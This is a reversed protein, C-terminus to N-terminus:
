LQPLSNVEVEANSEHRFGVVWSLICIQELFLEIAYKISVFSERPRSYIWLYFYVSNEYQPSFKPMNHLPIKNSLIARVCCFFYFFFFSELPFTVFHFCYKKTKREYWYCFCWISPSSTRFDWYNEPISRYHPTVRQATTWMSLDIASFYM